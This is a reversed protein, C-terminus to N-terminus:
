VNFYRNHLDKNINLFDKDSISINNVYKSHILYKIMTKLKQIDCKVQIYENTLINFIVYKTDDTNKNQIKELEYMYMYAALQLYNEKEIKQICKFEYLINNEKDLCDIFGTLKRNLLEPENEMFIKYEFLSEKSINLKSLRKICRDLKLQTLWNYNTIQYVKFLYGNHLTNYCNSIYLLEEPTLNHIDINNINYKKILKSNNKEFNSKVLEDFISIKNKLKLELMSPIAIGTIESISETTVDNTIKLPIDIPNLVYKKNQTIELQDFCNDIVNQPLFKILDTVPTDIYVTNDSKKLVFLKSKDLFCCASINSQNIFKLYDNTYHHFLTLQEIGRTTAVYLENSCVYPNSDKKYYEFYSEDFGFIIVVKRELGKTQHFTSFIMKDKLLEEDLKEDDNTPVYIMVHALEKKIKNELKRIPSNLSKVSPALIFMDSPKYGLNFYYKIEDFTRLKIGKKDGFCNCIIYRPKHNLIKNSIIREEHLLCRNIFLSMENTIRFSTSLNCKVWNYSNFNFLESAYEIYRQDAKNFDFISQNKDGFICIKATNKNDQYIKCILEYYLVTIDQAEDLIILDYNFDVFSKNKNTLIKYIISDTFCQNDYYAVCFSHYSHVKINNINLAKSKDRTEIKLKSNYTLLLINMTNFKKAIHLTCTTKGSGAVSDVVVNNNLSIQNVIDNQEISIEPLIM